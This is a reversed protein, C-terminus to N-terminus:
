PTAITDRTVDEVIQGVVAKVGALRQAAEVARMVKLDLAPTYAPLKLAEVRLTEFNEVLTEATKSFTDREGLAANKRRQNIWGFVIGALGLALGTAGSAWPAPALEGGISVGAVVAPNLSVNTYAVEPTIVRLINTEMRTVLNTSTVWNTLTIEPGGPVPNLQTSVHAVTVLEPSIKETAIPVDNTQAPRLVVRTSECGALLGIALAAICLRHTFLPHNM